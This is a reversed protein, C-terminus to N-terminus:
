FSFNIYIYIYIYVYIWIPLLIPGPLLRLRFFRRVLPVWGFWSTDTLATGALACDRSSRRRGCAVKHLGPLYSAPAGPGVHHCQCLLPQGVSGQCTKQWTWAGTEACSWSVYWGSCLTCRWHWSWCARPWSRDLIAVSHTKSVSNHKSKHTLAEQRGWATYISYAVFGASM